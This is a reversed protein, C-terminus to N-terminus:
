AISEILDPLLRKWILQDGNDGNTLIVFGSKRPISFASQSHFGDIDGGHAYLDGKDTHWIQWGLAWSMGEAVGPVRPQARLMENRSTENLRFADPPKPDMVEILFKAYDVATTLLAGASGYRAVSVPSGKPRPAPRGTKDHATAMRKGIAETWVYGSSTMGFPRLLNATMYDGYDSACVRYDLEFTGCNTSDTRGVLRTM